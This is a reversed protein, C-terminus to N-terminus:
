SKDTLLESRMGIKTLVVQEDPKYNRYRVRWYKSTKGIRTRLQVTSAFGWIATSDWTSSDWVGGDAATMLSATKAPDFEDYDLYVEVLVTVNGTQSFAQTYLYEYRKKHFPQQGDMWPTDWAFDITGIYYVFSTVTGDIPITSDITLVTGTNDTIRLRQINTATPDIIYVYRDVLKGGTTPFTATSDTLTTTTHSSVTGSTNSTNPVADNTANWWKFIQGSYSGVMVWPVKNTDEVACLSCVDFPNWLDSEWVGVRYNFPLMVNNRTKNIGALAFMIRQNTQDVEAAINSLQSFDINTSEITPGILPVGIMRPLGIADWAVPGKLSWWYTIGEITRISRHSVCGTDSSVQRITWSDPDNGYLAYMANRKFIILVEHAAHIGTIQDSDDANVAESNDPNWQEPFGVNSYFLSVGDSGFVRSLHTALYKLGDPPPDNESTNPGLTVLSLDAVNTQATTTTNDAVEGAQYFNQMTSTNRLYLRRTDVQSDSSVPINSWNIKKSAVTVTASTSDSISSESGTASNYFTVRAEYTGNHLGAVASDALAMTGVTPRTIGFTQVATGNFKVADGNSNVIFALNNAVAFDPLYDGSTFPAPNSGDAAATNGAGDLIDLRGNNGVLLHYLTYAGGSAAFKRFALQGLISPSGSVPTDNIVSAGKRKQVLAKQGSVLTLASNRGRPSENIDLEDPPKATVVGGSFNRIVDNIVQGL